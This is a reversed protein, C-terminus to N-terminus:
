RGSGSSEAPKLLLAPNFELIYDRGAEFVYRSEFFFGGSVVRVVHEGVEVEFPQTISGRVRAGDVYLQFQGIANKVSPNLYERPVTFTVKSNLKRLSVNITFDEAINIAQSSEFYGAATVRLTYAGPNVQAQLPTRGIRENGLFVEAGQVNSTLNLTFTMPELQANIAIDRNLTVEQTFPYYNDAEVMVTYRGQSLSLRTPARGRAQGDIYVTSNQVASTVTLSYTIPQLNANITSNGNLNVNAVYDRYGEARVTISYSGAPLTLSMPTVGKQVVANVLVQSNRVNSNIRLEYRSSGSRGSGTASRQAYLVTGAVAFVLLLLFIRKFKM